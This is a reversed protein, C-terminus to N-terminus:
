RQRETRRLYTYALFDEFRWQGGSTQRSPSCLRLRNLHLSERCLLLPEGHSPTCCNDKGQVSRRRHGWRVDGLRWVLNCWKGRYSKRFVIPYIGGGSSADGIGGMGVDWYQTCDCTMRQRM